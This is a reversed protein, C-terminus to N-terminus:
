LGMEKAIISKQIENTGGGVMAHKAERFYREMDYEPLQAYGGLAQMGNFAVQFAVEAAYVKAMSVEKLAREGRALKTAAAYTLLRAAEVAVEDEAMRHRLVQFKSIPRGFQSRGKTYRITDDLATRANGVYSAALSLREMELHERLYEWGRNVEGVLNEKPVRVDTLFIETTGFSKRVITNMKRLEVGPADNPVLILSIGAHKDPGTRALLAIVNGPLHAGSSFVKNGNIIWEEGDLEARTKLSAADSGSDPETISISFRVDGQLFGPLYKEKQEPTGHSCINTATFMGTMICAATDLSFKAMSECFIAFMVADASMGGYEEPILIGLWGNDAIKKYAEYPFERSEDHARTYDRGVEKDMFNQLTDYWLQQEDTFRFDM